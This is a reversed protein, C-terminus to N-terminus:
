DEMKKKEIKRILRKCVLFKYIIKGSVIAAVCFVGYASYLFQCLVRLLYLLGVQYISEDELIVFDFAAMNDLVGGLANERRMVYYLGENDLGEVVLYGGDMSKGFYFYFGEGINDIQLWLVDLVVFLVVIILLGWILLKVKGLYPKKKNLRNLIEDSDHKCCFFYLCLIIVFFIDLYKFVFSTDTKRVFLSLIELSFFTGFSLKIMDRIANNFRKYQGYRHWLVNTFFCLLFVVMTEEVFIIEACLVGILVLKLSDYIMENEYINIALLILIAAFYIDQMNKTQFSICGIAKMVVLAILVIIGLLNLLVSGNKLVEKKSKTKM